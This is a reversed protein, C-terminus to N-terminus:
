RRLRKPSLDAETVGRDAVQAPLPKSNVLAAVTQGMAPATQIGYGGQGAVWFFGPVADDYGAVLTKDAVFSRLGAWKRHLKAVKLTTAQEINHATTAIGLEDPQVDCPPMPTEDAPSGMLRGSEPKIYWTEGVDAVLPWRGFDHEAPGDFIIATRRKPVLGVPKAGALTAVEDCWAGAANVVVPAEVSGAKTTLRWWGGRHELGLLEADTMIQGGRAKLGRQYGQHLANVDIDMADPEHVAGVVYTERLSPVIRRAEKADVRRISAVLEHTDRFHKDLATMQEAPAVFMAGRPSLMPHYTFGAPPAEYFARSAVTLARVVRNGYAETFLAASRGTSHYGPMAEREIVVVRHSASLEYAASCGAMGAGVVVIDATVM